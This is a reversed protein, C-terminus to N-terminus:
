YLCMKDKYATGTFIVSGLNYSVDEEVTNASDTYCPKATESEQLDYNSILQAGVVGNTNIM